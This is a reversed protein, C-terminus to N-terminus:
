KKRTPIYNKFDANDTQIYDPKSNWVDVIDQPENIVWVILGYGANHILSVVDANLEEEGYKLSIGRAKTADADAIGKDIDGLSIVCQAIINQNDLEDMLALSTSEVLVHGEM